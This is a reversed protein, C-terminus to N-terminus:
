VREPLMDTPVVKLFKDHVETVRIADNVKLDDDCIIDWYEGFVYGKGLKGKPIDQKARGVQGLLIHRGSVPRKDRDYYIIFASVGIAILLVIVLFLIYLDFRIAPM